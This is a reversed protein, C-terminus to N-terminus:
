IFRYEEPSNSMKIYYYKDITLNLNCEPFKVEFVNGHAKVLKVLTPKSIM